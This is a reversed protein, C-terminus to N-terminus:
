FINSSVKGMRSVNSSHSVIGKDSIVGEYNELDSLKVTVDSYMSYAGIFVLFAIFLTGTLNTIRRKVLRKM